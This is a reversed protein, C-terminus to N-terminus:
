GHRPCQHSSFQCRLSRGSEPDLFNPGTTGRCGGLVNSCIVYYKSTDIPKGPGVLIEWWGPDDTEDHRAVHSDGSLAHCIVIANARKEDLCGWTEFCVSVQPLRGGNELELPEHSVWTQAHRLSGANGLDKTSPPNSVATKRNLLNDSTVPVFRKISTPSSTPLM